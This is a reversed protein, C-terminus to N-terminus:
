LPHLRGVGSPRWCSCAPLLRTFAAKRMNVFYGPGPPFALWEGHNKDMPSHLPVPGGRLAQAGAAASPFRLRRPALTYYRAIFREQSPSRGISTVSRSSPRASAERRLSDILAAHEGISAQEM